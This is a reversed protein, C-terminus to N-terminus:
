FQQVNFSEQKVLGDMWEDIGECVIRHQQTATAVRGIPAVWADKEGAVDNLEEFPIGFKGLGGPAHPRGALGVHGALRRCWREPLFVRRELEALYVTRSHGLVMTKRVVVMGSLPLLVQVRFILSAM